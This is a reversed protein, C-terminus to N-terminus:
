TPRGPCRERGVRTYTYVHIYYTYHLTYVYNFVYVDTDTNRRFKTYNHICTYSSVYLCVYM